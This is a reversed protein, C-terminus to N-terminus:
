KLLNAVSIMLLLFCSILTWKRSLTCVYDSNSSSSPNKDVTFMQVRFNKTDSVYLDGERNLTLSIPGNLQNSANGQGNGGIIVTANREGVPLSVVRQNEEDLVYITGREDLVIGGPISLQDIRSGNGNGGVVIIGETANITWKVVRHNNSDSV